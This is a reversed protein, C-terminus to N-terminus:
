DVAPGCIGEDFEVDDFVEASVIGGGACGLLSGDGAVATGIIDIGTLPNVLRGNLTSRGEGLVPRNTLILARLSSNGSSIM